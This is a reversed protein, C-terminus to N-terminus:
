RIPIKRVLVASRRLLTMKGIMYGCAQGAWVCYREIETETASEDHSLSVRDM